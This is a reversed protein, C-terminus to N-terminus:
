IQVETYPKEPPSYYTIFTRLIRGDVDRNIYEKIYITM